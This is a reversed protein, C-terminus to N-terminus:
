SPVSTNILNYTALLKRNKTHVTAGNQSVAHFYDDFKRMVLNLEAYM